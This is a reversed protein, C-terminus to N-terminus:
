YGDQLAGQLARRFSPQQYSCGGAFDLALPPDIKFASLPDFRTVILLEGYHHPASQLREEIAKRIREKTKRDILPLDEARVDPHYHLSFPM